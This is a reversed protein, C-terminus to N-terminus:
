RFLMILNSFFLTIQLFKVRSCSIGLLGLTWSTECEENVIRNLIWDKDLSLLFLFCWSFPLVCCLWSFVPSSLTFLLNSKTVVDRSVVQSFIIFWFSVLWVLPWNPTSSSYTSLYIANIWGLGLCAVFPRYFNYLSRCAM